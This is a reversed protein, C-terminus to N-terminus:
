TPKKDAMRATLAIGSWVVSRFTMAGVSEAAISEAMLKVLLLLGLVVIHALAIVISLRTAWARKAWLGVGALLAVIGMVVNYIVLPPVVVYAPQSIELLVRSGAIVSALGVVVGVAGALRRKTLSQM